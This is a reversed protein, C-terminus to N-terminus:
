KALCVQDNQEAPSGPGNWRKDDESKCELGDETVLVFMDQCTTCVWITNCQSLDFGKFFRSFDMDVADGCDCSGMGETKSLEFDIQNTVSRLSWNLPIRLRLEKTEQNILGVRKGFFFVNPPGFGM